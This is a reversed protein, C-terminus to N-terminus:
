ETRPRIMPYIATGGRAVVEEIWIPVLWLGKRYEITDLPFISQGDSVATKFIRV